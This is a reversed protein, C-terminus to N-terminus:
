TTVWSFHTCLVNVLQVSRGVLKCQYHSGCVHWAHTTLTFVGEADGSLGPSTSSPVHLKGPLASLFYELPQGLLGAMSWAGLYMYIYMYIPLALKVHLVISHM